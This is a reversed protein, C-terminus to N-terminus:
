PVTSGRYLGEPIVLFDRTLFATAGHVLAAALQIAETVKYGRETVLRVAEKKFEPTYTKKNQETM